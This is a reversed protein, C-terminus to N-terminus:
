KWISYMSQKAPLKQQSERQPRANQYRLRRRSNSFSCFFISERRVCTAMSCSCLEITTDDDVWAVLQCLEPGSAVLPRPVVVELVGAWVVVVVVVVLVVVLGVFFREFEVDDIRSCISNIRGNRGYLSRCIVSGGGFCNNGNCMFDCLVAATAGLLSLCPVALEVVVVVEVACDTM